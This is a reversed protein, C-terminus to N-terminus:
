LNIYKENYEKLSKILLENESQNGVTIRLCNNLKVQKSRDRIVINKSILFNYLDDSNQVRILIFNAKTPFIKEVFEFRSLELIIKERDENLQAIIKRTYDSNEISKIVADVALVSLNYPAKVKLLLDIINNDAYCYGCRVGALGWAKSFTGTILINNCDSIKNILSENRCFDIYAEDVVLIANVKKALMIIDESNIINGTPNNPSCLFILKTNVDIVNLISEQDLQFSETLKVTRSQVDNIDCIVKYMGYTPENIIANDKGPECFIRVILDLIEDSGVGFILKQYDVKLYDAFTKRLKIQKPDPYRNVGYSLESVYPNENADLLIGDSFSDRASTYPELSKINNRVLNDIRM